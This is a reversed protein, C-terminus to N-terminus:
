ACHRSTIEAMKNEIWEETLRNIEEASRGQTAIPPGIWIHIVGPTKIFSRKPWHEGANHAVPVVPYGTAAALRAGGLRYNGRQGPPMRTGEPFIVIWRGQKLRAAGQELLQTLAKRKASRDIAIPELMAIGWGFFPIWLLERKILWSQDPFILQLALTEWTSQHKSLVIANTAPINELGHVQYRLGCTVKLWWLNFRSWQTIFRYRWSFPFPFTLVSPFSFAITSLIYGISFLLSRLALM